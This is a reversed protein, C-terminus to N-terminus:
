KGAERHEKRQGAAAGLGEQWGERACFRPKQAKKAKPVGTKPCKSCLISTKTRKQPSFGGNEPKELVFDLNKHKKPSRFGRKRANRACFRPKQASKAKPVRTKPSKSCLIPTKTRKQGESGKNEPMELVFDANKHTKQTQFGQKRAERACFQPKQASHQPPHLHHHSTTKKQTILPIFQRM